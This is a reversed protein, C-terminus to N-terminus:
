AHVGEARLRLEIERDEITSIEKRLLKKRYQLAELETRFYPRGWWKGSEYLLGSEAYVYQGVDKVLIKWESVKDRSVHWVKDGVAIEDFSLM